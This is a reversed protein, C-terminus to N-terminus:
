TFETMFYHYDEIMLWLLSNRIDDLILAVEGCPIASEHFVGGLRRCHLCHVLLLVAEELQLLLFDSLVSAVPDLVAIWDSDGGLPGAVDIHFLDIERVVVIRRLNKFV